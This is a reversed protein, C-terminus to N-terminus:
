LDDGHGEYGDDTIAVALRFDVEGVLLVAAGEEVAGGGEVTGLNPLIVGSCVAM